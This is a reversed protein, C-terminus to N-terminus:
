LYFEEVDPDFSLNGTFSSRLNNRIMLKKQAPKPLDALSIVGKDILVMILDELVRVLELDSRNLAELVRRQEDNDTPQAPDDM